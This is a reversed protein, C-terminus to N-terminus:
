HLGEQVLEKHHLKGLIELSYHDMEVEPTLESQGIFNLESYEFPIGCDDHLIRCNPNGRSSLEGSCGSVFFVVGIPM